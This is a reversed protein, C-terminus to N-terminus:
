GAGDDRTTLVLQRGHVGGNQNAEQFAANIGLTMGIGLQASPGSQAASQGFLVMDDSIGSVAHLEDLTPVQQPTEGQVVAALAQIEALLLELTQQNDAILEKETAILRRRQDLTGSFADAGTDLLANSM